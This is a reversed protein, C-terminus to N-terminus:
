CTKLKNKKSCCLDYINIRGHSRHTRQRVCRGYPINERIFSDLKSFDIRKEKLKVTLMGCGIDVGVINPIVKDTITMTTGITCGKGAHVDPMIRIKSGSSIEQNCFARILRESSSDLNDTYIIANGHNGTIEIM